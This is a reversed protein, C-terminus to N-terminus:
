RKSSALTIQPHFFPIFFITCSIQTLNFGRPFEKPSVLEKFFDQAVQAKREGDTLWDRFWFRLTRSEQTHEDTKASVLFVRFELTLHATVKASKQDSLFHKRSTFCWFNEVNKGKVVDKNIIIGQHEGGAVHVRDSVEEVLKREILIVTSNSTKGRPTMVVQEHSPPLSSYFHHNNNNVSVSNNNNNSHHNNQYFSEVNNNVNEDYSTQQHDSGNGNSYPAKSKPKPPPPPPSTRPRTTTTEM